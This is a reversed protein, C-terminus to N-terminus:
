IDKDELVKLPNDHSLENFKSEGIIRIIKEKAQNFNKILSSNYKHTDTALFTIMNNKLLYTFLKNAHSGFEGIISGYNSQLLIGEAYLDELLSIDKQFYTYREPHALIPIYGKIKLEYLYDEMNSLKINMPFEVLVYRSKNITSIEHNLVLDHIDDTMYVENALYLDMNIDDIILNVKIDELKKKKEKNNANYVTNKIYHPTAVIKNFGLKKLNEIVKITDNITKCGDDIGYIFHNHIDIM